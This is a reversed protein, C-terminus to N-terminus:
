TNESLWQTWIQIHIVMMYSILAINLNWFNQIFHLMSSKLPKDSFFQIKIIWFTIRRQTNPGLFMWYAVFSDQVINFYVKICFMYPRFLRTKSMVNVVYRQSLQCQSRSKKNWANHPVVRWTGVMSPLFIGRLSFSIMLGLVTLLICPSPRGCGFCDVLRPSKITSNSM